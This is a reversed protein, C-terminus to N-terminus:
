IPSYIPQFEGVGQWARWSTPQCIRSYFAEGTLDIGWFPHLTSFLAVPRLDFPNFPQSNKAPCIWNEWNQKEVGSRKITGGM